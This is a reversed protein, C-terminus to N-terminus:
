KGRWVPKRKELFSALGERFDATSLSRANERIALELDRDLDSECFHGLLRKTLLLSTPSAAILTAALERARDFLIGAPAVETVLGIQHAEAAELIRGTLLLDRARKEGIQRILFVSVIAPIFGIRVESYGFRAEPAALTFDCLTAIGCGGAIAAGNVAAILPKPFSYLRRFLHAVRRCDELYQEPSQSSIAKLADLDMGSCFAKGAGTVIVVRVASAEVEDLAALLDEIMETSIANRKEPRNLTITALEGEAPSLAPGVVGSLSLGEFELKLTTYGM